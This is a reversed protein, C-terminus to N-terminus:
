LDLTALGARDWVFRAGPWSGAPRTPLLHATATKNPNQSAGRTTGERRHRLRERWRHSSQLPTLRRKWGELTDTTSPAFPEPLARKEGDDAGQRARGAASLDGHRAPLVSVRDPASPHSPRRRGAVRVQRTALVDLERRLEMAERASPGKSAARSASRGRRRRPLARGCRSAHGAGSPRARGAREDM